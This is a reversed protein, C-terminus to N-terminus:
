TRFVAPLVDSAESIDRDRTPPYQETNRKTTFDVTVPVRGVAIYSHKREAAAAATRTFCASGPIHFFLGRVLFAMNM